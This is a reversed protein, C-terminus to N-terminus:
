NVENSHGERLGKIYIAKRKILGFHTSYLFM